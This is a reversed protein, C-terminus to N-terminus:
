EREALLVEDRGDKEEMCVKVVQNAATEVTMAAFDAQIPYERWGRDVLVGLRIARPRGFDIIEDIASRITRGTYLVDDILLITRGDVDFSIETGRVLPHAALQSLDDRYLNIDIAGCPIRWDRTRALHAQIRKALIAGRSKIGVVAAQAPDGALVAMAEALAAVKDAMGAANLLIEGQM